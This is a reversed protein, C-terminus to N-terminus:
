LLVSPTAPGNCCFLYAGPGVLVEVVHAYRQIELRRPRLLRTPVGSTQVSFFCVFLAMTLHSVSSQKSHM